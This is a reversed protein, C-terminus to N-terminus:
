RTRIITRVRVIQSQRGIGFGGNPDRTRVGVVDVEGNGAHHCEMLGGWVHRSAPASILRGRNRRILSRYNSNVSKRRTSSSCSCLCNLNRVDHLGGQQVIWKRLNVSFKLYNFFNCACRIVEIADRELPGRDKVFSM